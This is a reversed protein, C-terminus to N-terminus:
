GFTRWIGDLGRRRGDRRKEEDMGVGGPEGVSEYRSGDGALDYAKQCPISRWCEGDLDGEGLRHDGSTSKCRGSEGDGGDITGEIGEGGGESGPGM